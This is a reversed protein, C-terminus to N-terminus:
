WMVTFRDAVDLQPTHRQAAIVTYIASLYVCALPESYRLTVEEGEQPDTPQQECVLASGQSQRSLPARCSSAPFGERHEVTTCLLLSAVYRGTFQM